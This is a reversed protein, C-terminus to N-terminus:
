RPVGRWERQPWHDTDTKSTEPTNETRFVVLKRIKTDSLTKMDVRFASKTWYRSFETQNRKYSKLPPKLVFIVAIKRSLDKSKRLLNLKHDHLDNVQVTKALHIKNKRNPSVNSELSEVQVPFLRERHEYYVKMRWIGRTSVSLFITTRRNHINGIHNCHEIKM